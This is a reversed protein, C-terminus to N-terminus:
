QSTARLMNLVECLGDATVFRGSALPTLRRQQGHPGLLDERGSEIPEGEDFRAEISFRLRSDEVTWECRPYLGDQRGACIQITWTTGALTAASTPPARPLGLARPTTVASPQDRGGPLATASQVGLAGLQCRESGARSAQLGVQLLLGFVYPLNFNHVM